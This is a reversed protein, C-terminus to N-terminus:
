KKEKHLAMTLPVYDGTYLDKVEILHSKKSKIEDARIQSTMDDSDIIYVPVSLEKKLEEKLERLKDIVKDRKDKQYFDVFVFCDNDINKIRIGFLKQKNDDSVVYDPNLKTENKMKIMKLGSMKVM